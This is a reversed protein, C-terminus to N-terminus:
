ATFDFDVSFAPNYMAAQSPDPTNLANSGHDAFEYESESDSRNTEDAVDRNGEYESDSSNLSDYGREWHEDAKDAGVPLFDTRRLTGYLHVGSRRQFRSVAVYGYGRGTPIVLHLYTVIRLM